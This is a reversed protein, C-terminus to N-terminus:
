KNKQAYGAEGSHSLKKVDGRDSDQLLMSIGSYVTLAFMRYTFSGHGYSHNRFLVCWVFPMACIMAYPVWALSMTRLRKILVLAGGIILILFYLNTLCSLNSAIAFFPSINFEGFESLSSARFAIQEIANQVVNEGLTVSAIIWKGCWMGVYGLAWSVCCLIVQKIDSIWGRAKRLNLLYVLPFGLTLLPFTLFDVYSTVMGILLFFLGVREAYLDMRKKAAIIMAVLVVYSVTCYQMCFPIVIPMVFAVAYLFVIGGRIGSTRVLLGTTVAMLSTLVLVNLWRIQEYSFLLLLPKLLVLYGHWYRSYSRVDYGEEGSLFRELDDVAYNGYYARDNKMAKIIPNGGGDFTAISLMTCDTVNDRATGRTNLFFVKVDRFNDQEMRLNASGYLTPYAGEGVIKDLSKKAHDFMRDTPLLYVAIMLLFGAGIGSLLIFLYMRINQLVVVVKQKDKLKGKM